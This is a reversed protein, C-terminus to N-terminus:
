YMLTWRLKLYFVSLKEKSKLLQETWVPVAATPTLTDSHQEETDAM